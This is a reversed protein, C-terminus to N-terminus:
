LLILHRRVKQQSSDPGAYKLITTFCKKFYVIPKSFHNSLRVSTEQNFLNKNNFQQHIKRLKETRFINRGNMHNEIFVM